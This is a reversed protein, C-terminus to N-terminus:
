CSLLSVLEEADGKPALRLIFEGEVGEPWAARLRVKVCDEGLHVGQVEPLPFELFERGGGERFFHDIAAPPLPFEVNLRTPSDVRDIEEAALFFLRTTTVFLEGQAPLLIPIEKGGRIWLLSAEIAGNATPSEGEALVLGDDSLPRRRLSAFSASYARGQGDIAGVQM